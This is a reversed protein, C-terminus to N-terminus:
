RTIVSYMAHILLYTVYTFGAFSVLGFVKWNLERSSDDEELPLQNQEEIPEVHSAHETSESNDLRQRYSIGSSPLGVSGTVRDGRINLKAGRGL